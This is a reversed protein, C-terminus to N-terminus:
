AYRVAKYFAIYLYILYILTVAMLGFGLNETQTLLITPLNFRTLGNLLLLSWLVCMFLIKPLFLKFSEIKVNSAAMTDLLFAWFHLLFTCFTVEFTKQIVFLIGESPRLPNNAFVLLIGLVIVKVQVIGIDRTKIQKARM